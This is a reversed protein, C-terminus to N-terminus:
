LAHAKRRSRGQEALATDESGSIRLGLGSRGARPERGPATRKVAEFARGPGSVQVATMKSM